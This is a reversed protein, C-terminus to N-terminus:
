DKDVNESNKWDRYRLKTRKKVALEIFAQAKEFPSGCTNWYFCFLNLWGQLEERSFGSHAGIFGALYRHVENIPEMPNKDDAIGKTEATTHIEEKLGLSEVLAKHSNDGDHVVMSGRAIVSGYAKLAKASSPKGVGCLYLVCRKGDTASCVCFQNRSLGNLLKGDKTASESKWRPFYTEDIWVKGSFVIDSQIDDVVLFVKSLWYLGTTVANRNDFATTRVSHFQFLHVLFEIWDSFPIKRSDFITGALPNFKRGCTKCERIALGTKKNFGDRRIRKSGCFPCEEIVISNIFYVEEKSPKRHKADYWESITSVMMDTSMLADSFKGRLAEKQRKNMNPPEGM